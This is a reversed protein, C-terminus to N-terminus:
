GTCWLCAAQAMLHPSWGEWEGHQVKVLHVACTCGPGFIYSCMGRSEGHQVKMLDLQHVHWMWLAVGICGLLMGMMAVTFPKMGSARERVPQRRIRGWGSGGGSLSFTM